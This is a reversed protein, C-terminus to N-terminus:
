LTSYLAEESRHYLMYWGVHYVRNKGGVKDKECVKVGVGM